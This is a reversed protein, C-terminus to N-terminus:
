AKCSMCSIYSPLSGHCIWHNWILIQTYRPLWHIWLVASPLIEVLNENPGKQLFPPCNVAANCNPACNIGISRAIFIGSAFAATSLSHYFSSFIGAHSRVLTLLLDSTISSALDFPAFTWKSWQHVDTMQLIGFQLCLVLFYLPRTTTRPSMTFFSEPDQATNVSCPDDADWIVAAFTMSIMDLSGPHAPCAASATDASVSTFISSAGFNNFIGLDSHGSMQIRRGRCLDGFDHDLISSGTTGRSRFKYPWGKAPSNHSLCNSFTKPLLSGIPFAQEYM